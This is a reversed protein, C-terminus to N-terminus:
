SRLPPPRGSICRYKATAGFEVHYVSKDCSKQLSIPECIKPEKKLSSICGYGGERCRGINNKNFDYYYTTSVPVDALYRLKSEVKCLGLQNGSDDFFAGDRVEVEVVGNLYFYILGLLVLLVVFITIFVLIKKKM